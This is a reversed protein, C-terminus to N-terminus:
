HLGAVDRVDEQQVMTLTASPARLRQLQHSNHNTTPMTRTLFGSLVGATSPFAPLFSTFSSGSTTTVTSLTQSHAPAAVNALKRKLSVGQSRV